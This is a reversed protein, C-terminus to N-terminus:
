LHNKKTFIEITMVSHLTLIDIYGRGNRFGSHCELIVTTFM